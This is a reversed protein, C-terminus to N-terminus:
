DGWVSRDVKADRKIVRIGQTRWDTAKPALDDLMTTEQRQLQRTPRDASASCTM